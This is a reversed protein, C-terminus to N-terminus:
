ALIRDGGEPRLVDLIELAQQIAAPLPSEVLLPTGTVPHDLELRHAHLALRALVVGDDDPHISRDVHSRLLPRPDGYLHDCVIPHGIHALHVRLQHTRGTLLSLELLAHRAFTRAVSWRTRAPLGDPRVAQHLSTDADPDPGLPAEIWGGPQEPVGEVLAFYTKRVERAMFIDMVQADVHRNKVVLVVGSTDRDLRHALRPVVDRRPDDSRYRAHLKNILTGHRTRGVPHAAMGSPKDIALLHEDEHLVVLDKDCEREPATPDEPLKIVVVDGTRVKLAPKVLADNVLVDGQEVKRRYTTRSHWPYHARLLADIRAGEEKAEVTFRFERIPRSLDLYQRQLRPM